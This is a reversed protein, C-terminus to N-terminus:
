EGASYKAGGVTRIQSSTFDILQNTDRISEARPRMGCSMSWDMSEDGTYCRRRSISRIRCTRLGSIMEARKCVIFTQMVECQNQKAKMAITSASSWVNATCDTLRTQSCPARYPRRCNRCVNTRDSNCTYLEVNISNVLIYIYIYIYLIM